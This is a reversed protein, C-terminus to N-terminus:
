VPPARLPPLTCFAPDPILRSDREHPIVPTAVAPARFLIFAAAISASLDLVGDLKKALGQGDLSVDVDHHIRDAGTRGHDAGDETAHFSAPADKGHFCLHLHASSVPMAFVAIALLAFLVWRFRGSWRCRQVATKELM